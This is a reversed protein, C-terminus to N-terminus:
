FLCNQKCKTLCIHCYSSSFCSATLAMTNLLMLLLHFQLVKIRQRFSSHWRRWIGKRRFSLWHADNWKLGFDAGLPSHVNGFFSHIFTIHQGLMDRSKLRIIKQPGDEFLLQLLVLDTVDVLDSFSFLIGTAVQSARTFKLGLLTLASSLFLVPGSQVTDSLPTVLNTALPNSM